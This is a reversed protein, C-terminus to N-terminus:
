EFAHSAFAGHPFGRVACQLQRDVAVDSDKSASPFPLGTPPLLTGYM